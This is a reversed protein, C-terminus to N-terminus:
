EFGHKFIVDDIIIQTLVRTGFDILWLNGTIPDFSLGWAENVGRAFPMSVPDAVPLGTVTDVAITFIAPENFPDASDFTYDAVMIHNALPGATIYEIDGIAAANLNSILTAASLTFTGDGDDTVDHMWLQNNVYDAKLLKGGNSYQQPIFALGGYDDDYNVITYVEQNNVADRQGIGINFQHFFLSDSNPAFTLGTDINEASFLETFAGFGIVNGNPSRNVSATMVNGTLEESDVIMYVLDGDDSFLLDGYAVAVGAPDDFQNLIASNAALDTLQSHANYSLILGIIILLKYKVSM